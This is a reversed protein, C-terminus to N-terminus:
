LDVLLVLERCYHEGAPCISARLTGHRLNAGRPALVTPAEAFYASDPTLHPADFRLVTGDALELAPKARANIRAGAAPELTLRIGGAVPEARVRVTPAQEDLEDFDILSPLTRTCNGCTFVWFNLLVVNTLEPAVDRVDPPRAPALVALAALCTILPSARM